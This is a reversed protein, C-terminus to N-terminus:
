EMGDDIPWGRRLHSDVNQMRGQPCDIAVGALTDRDRKRLCGHHPPCSKQDGHRSLFLICVCLQTIPITIKKTEVSCVSVEKREKDPRTKPGKHKLLNSQDSQFIGLNKCEVRCALMIAHIFCKEGMWVKTGMLHCIGSYVCM